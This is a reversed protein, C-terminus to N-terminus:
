LNVGDFIFQWGEVSILTPRPLRNEAPVIGYPVYYQLNVSFLAAFANLVNKLNAQSFHESRHHKVKNYATWWDPIEDPSEWNKWPTLTFGHKPIHYQATVLRPLQERVIVRYDTIKPQSKTLGHQQQCVAKLLVDVESSAALLLHALEISFTNENDKHFEIFRSIQALDQELALFYNWHMLAPTSTIAM